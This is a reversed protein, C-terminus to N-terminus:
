ECKHYVTKISKREDIHMNVRVRVRVEVGKGGFVTM